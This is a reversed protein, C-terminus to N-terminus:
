DNSEEKQALALVVRAIKNAEAETLDLPIGQIRVILGPRIEVPIITDTMPGYVASM